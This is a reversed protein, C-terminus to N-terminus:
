MALPCYRAFSAFRVQQISTAIFVVYVCAGGVYTACLAANVFIKSANAWPRVQKPGCLFAAYATEAYNMKPTKTRRCLIHSTRVLIHVCHACIFSIIITGIGGFLVGGNRIANPMALIGTGLSSKLLHALSGLDRFRTHSTSMQRPFHLGGILLSYLSLLTRDSARTIKVNTVTNTFRM